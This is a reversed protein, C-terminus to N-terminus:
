SELAFAQGLEVLDVLELAANLVTVAVHGHGGHGPVEQAHVELGPVSRPPRDFRDPEEVQWHVLAAVLLHGVYLYSIVQCNICFASCCPM